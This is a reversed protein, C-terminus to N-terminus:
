REAETSDVATITTVNLVQAGVALIDQEFRVTALFQNIAVNDITGGDSAVVTLVSSPALIGLLGNDNDVTFSLGLEAATQSSATLTYADLNVSLLPEFAIEASSLNNNPDVAIFAQGNFDILDLADAGIIGLLAGESAQVVPPLDSDVVTVTVTESDSTRVIGGSNVVRAEVSHDGGALVNLQYEWSTGDVAADAWAGGDVRVEVQDGQDLAASLTGAIIPSTDGTELDGIEGTIESAGTIDIALASVPETGSLLTVDVLNGITSSDSLGTSDTATISTASLVQAGVLTIDQEYRVTSLM